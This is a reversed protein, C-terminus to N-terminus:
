RPRSKPDVVRNLGNGFMNVGLVSLTLFLSPFLIIAPKIQFFTRGDSVINGWSPTEPPTGAGLFSLMSETIMASAAVFTLQVLVPSMINPLIHRLLLMHLRTGSTIAAEVFAQERLSLVFSRVLRAVRPVETLTIVLIVNRMSPGTLAMLAIAFLVSPISMLGDMVRMLLGDLPRVFSAVVGIAIGAIGSLLAVSFGILLSIRGGYLVRSYLDRGYRDTGFWHQASPDGLRAQSNMTTPDMTGLYPSFIATSVMLLLLFGGIWLPPNRGIARFLRLLAGKASPDTASELTLSSM